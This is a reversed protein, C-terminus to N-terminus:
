LTDMIQKAHEYFSTGRKIAKFGSYGKEARAKATAKAWKSKKGAESKKASVIKNSKSKILDAKTLGTSTKVKKGRWVQVKAKKGKAITSVKKVPKKMVKMVKMLPKAPRRTIARMAKM